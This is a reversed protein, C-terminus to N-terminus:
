ETVYRGPAAELPPYEASGTQAKAPVQEGSREGLWAFWDPWWSGEQQKASAMWDDANETIAENTWYGRKKKAPPNIVGAIHGSGGLVFRCQGPLVRTSAYASHWPVIHDERAAFIYTPADITRLDVTEGCLKLTGSKFDNQLYTHRLYWCYMPGPMNTSDNNWFLLDLAKPKEGKLYKGVHYNWWLENPRLLSFTNGMDEGRFLGTPTGDKGGITRERYSVLQEDVFVDIKGTDIYDLFAALLSVSGVERDGRAALVALASCLLTGGICFGLYNLKRVGSIARVARIAAIVGNQVVDDMRLHSQAEGFNRWSILFVPFGQELLHKVMSNEPKLDLIYYKNIAPPVILLPTRYQMETLPRYHILQFIDNEFVVDGQTTALDVGVKFEGADCQRLRGEQMDSLLHQLGTFLSAGGTNVMQQLADPNSLLFNSPASAAISQEVLYLLRERPKAPAIPLLAMLKQLYDSNLLYLAAVSGFLPQAWAKGSFRPDTFELPQGSLLKQGLETLKQQYDAQLAELAKSDPEFWGTQDFEAFWPNQSLWLPLQQLIPHTSFNVQAPWYAAFPAKM